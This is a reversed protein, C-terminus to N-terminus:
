FTMKRNTRYNVSLRYLYYVILVNILIGVRGSIIWSGLSKQSSVGTTSVSENFVAGITTSVMHIAIGLILLIITITWAWGKGKLFRHFMGIYGIGIALLM